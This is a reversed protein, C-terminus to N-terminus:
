HLMAVIVPGWATLLINGVAYPVTYGLAPLKSHSEEQVARLAATITGAGCCVGLLILPNMRLVYRGFLIALAHPLVAVCLGVLVLSLGSKQIGAIFSPGASLGVVGIFVTLGVTDFVWMAAEPIRGFM